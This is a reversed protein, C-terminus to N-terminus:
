VQKLIVRVTPNPTRPVPYSQTTLFDGRSVRGDGDVDIHAWITSERALQEVEVAVVAVLGDRPGDIRGRTGGLTRAPADQLATDRIEVSVPSGTPVRLRKEVQLEVTVM